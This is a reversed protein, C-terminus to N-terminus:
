EVKRTALFVNFEGCEEVLKEVDPNNVLEKLLLFQDEDTIHIDNKKGINLSTYAHDKSQLVGRTVRVVGTRFGIQIPKIASPMNSWNGLNLFMDRNLLNQEFREETETETTKDNKKSM